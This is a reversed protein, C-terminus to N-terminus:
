LGWSKGIWRSADRPAGAPTRHSRNQPTRDAPPAQLAEDALERKARALAQEHLASPEADETHALAYERDAPDLFSAAEAFGDFHM